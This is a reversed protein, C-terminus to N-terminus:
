LNHQNTRFYDSEYYDVNRGETSQWWADARESLDRKIKHYAPDAALNKLEDPDECLDYLEETDDPGYYRVYKKDRTRVGYFPHLGWYAAYHEFFMHEGDPHESRSFAQTFEAGSFSSPVECGALGLLTAAFSQSSVLDDVESRKSRQDAPLKFICPVHFIEEYPLTGKLRMRHAGMMDGHDSLFLVLTEEWIGLRKFEAIVNGMHEDMMAIMSYYDSLEQKAATEDHAGHSGDDAHAKQFPPKDEFTESYYSTPLEMEQVPFLDAYKNETFFPPHPLNTSFVFFLPDKDPTYEKLFAVADDAAQYDRRLPGPVHKIGKAEAEDDPINLGDYNRGDTFGLEALPSGLHSKGFYVTEYGESGLAHALTTHKKGTLMNQHDYFGYNVMVGCEHPSMGTMMAARSPVCQGQVTYAHSFWTGEDALADLNPTHATEDVRGMRQYQMQDCWLVLIHPKKTM